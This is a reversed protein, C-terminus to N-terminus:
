LFGKPTSKSEPLYISRLQHKPCLPTNLDIHGILHHGFYVEWQRDAQTSPRLGIPLGEFARGIYWTQNQFTIVGRSRVKHVSLSSCYQVAPLHTPLSRSSPRYRSVPTDGGLADHPRECNYRNRYGSFERECHALDSWTHQAILEAHLTRHFREEKGQTQPHYPRGHKVSIGLQLLWVTFSTYPCVPDSQGWPPGNDCLISEPIGYRDFTPTLAQRVTRGTQESCAALVLNFRSHDDLVTLPHCRPGAQTPFHGKFDMQWLQNPHEREFRQFPKPVPPDRGLLEARRLISTCTSASPVAREGLDMLRRRLKRGGWVPNATRLAVVAAEMEPRTIRPSRRPRRSQDALGEKGEQAYRRKWKYGTKRSIRFQACLKSFCTGPQQAILVLEHRQSMPSNTIWPM